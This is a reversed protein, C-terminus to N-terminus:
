REGSRALRREREAPSANWLTEPSPVGRTVVNVCAPKGSQLAREMAPRIEEPRTVHEGHGGLAEVLRDFRRPVNELPRVGRAGYVLEVGYKSQAWLSDNAVVVVFPLRLRDATDFETPHYGFGGDGTLAIVQKDPRALKAAVAYPVDVGLSGTQGARLYSGPASPELLWRGFQEIDGGSTIVVTQEDVFRRVEAVLRMPHIPVDDSHLLPEISKEVRGRVARLEEIWVLHDGTAGHAEIEGLLQTTVMKLDGVIGLDVDRNYGIEEAEIDVQIVPLDPRVLPPEGYEILYDFRAGLMMLLDCRQLAHIAVDNLAVAGVGCNLAHTAPLTGRGMRETFVPVHARELFRRMEATADSWWVGSGVIAVPREARAIARVAERVLAPDGQPRADTRYRRPFRVQSEEVTGYTVNAPFDLFVPGPRGRTAERIALSLYEPVRATSHVTRALKTITKMMSLQDMHSFPRQDWRGTGSAGALVVLPTAALQSTIVAPTAMGVATGLTLACVGPGRTLRGYGEAMFAAAVDHRAHIIQIQSGECASYFPHIPGGSVSFVHRVGEAELFRAMLQGGTVMAM